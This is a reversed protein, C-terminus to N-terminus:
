LRKKALRVPRTSEPNSLVAAQRTCSPNHSLEVYPVHGVNDGGFAQYITSAMFSSIWCSTHRNSTQVHHRAVAPLVSVWKTINCTTETKLLLVLIGKVHSYLEWRM